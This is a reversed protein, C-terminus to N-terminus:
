SIVVSKCKDKCNARRLVRNGNANQSVRQKEVERKEAVNAAGIGAPAFLWFNKIDLM